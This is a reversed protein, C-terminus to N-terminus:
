NLRNQAFSALVRFFLHPPVTITQKAEELMIENNRVIADMEKQSVKLPCDLINQTSWLKIDYDIGSSALVYHYPNPALCNTVREDAPFAMILKATDKEWVMIRGCDSGSMIFDDGWFIAEKISTRSNRHGQYRVRPHYTPINSFRDKLQAFKRKFKLKTEQSIQPRADNKSSTASEASQNNDGQEKNTDCNIRTALNMEHEFEDDDDGEEEEEEEEEEEDEEEEDEDGTSGDHMDESEDVVEEEGFHGDDTAPEDNGNAQTTANNSERNASSFPGAVIEARSLFRSGSSWRSDLSFAMETMRQIFNPAAQSSTNESRRSFPVSNVGTDSWDGRVRIRPTRMTRAESRVTQNNSRDSSNDNSGDSLNGDTYTSTNTKKPLTQVLEFNSSKDHNFLYVYDQSYSALVQEGNSSYCLSTFRCKEEIQPVTFQGVVGELPHLCRFQSSIDALRDCHAKERSFASVNPLKRRDYVLGVGDVRGVLLLNSNLPHVSLTTMSQSNRILAPHPCTSSRACSRHCRMDFLRVTKDDSCSFFVNDDDQLTVVEYITSSHCNFNLIGQSPNTSNIDHVIVPGDTSCSVLLYDNSNPIFQACFINGHHRTQVKHLVTYDKSDDFMYNPKTICLNRDDSGSLIYEGTKNWCITNVCGDHVPLKKMLNLRDLFPSHNRAINAVNRNYYPVKNRTSLYNILQKRSRYKSTLNRAQDSSRAQDDSREM